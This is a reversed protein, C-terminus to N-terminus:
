PTIARAQFGAIFLQSMCLGALGAEAISGFVFSPNWWTGGFLPVVLVFYAAFYAMPVLAGLLRFAGPNQLSPRMKAVVFDGALGALISAAVILLLELLDRSLESGIWLKEAVCLVALAGFRLRVRAVLYLVAAALLVSQWIVTLMEMAQRYFLVTSLVLQEQHFVIQSLPHDRMLIEPYFAIQTIFQIIEFALGMSLLMPIQSPLTLRAPRLLASRVPGSVLFLLGSLLFLHPPSVLLDLQHEFGFVAHWGFDITGGAILCAVGAVSLEYGAPVSGMLSFGRRRNRAVAMALVFVAFVGGSYMLIHWPSFFTEISSYLHQHGDLFLGSLTWVSAFVMLWEFRSTAFARAGLQGSFRQSM